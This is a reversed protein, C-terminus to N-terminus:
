LKLDLLNLFPLGVEKERRVFAFTREGQAQRLTGVYTASKTPDADGGVPGTAGSGDQNLAPLFARGACCFSM